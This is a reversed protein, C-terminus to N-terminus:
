PQTTPRAAQQIRDLLAQARDKRDAETFPQWEQGETARQQTEQNILIRCRKTPESWDPIVTIFFRTQEQWRRAIRWVGPFRQWSTTIVGDKESEISLPPDSSHLTRSHM